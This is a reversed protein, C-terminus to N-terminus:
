DSLDADLSCRVPQRFPTEVQVKRDSEQSPLSAEIQRCAAQPCRGAPATIVALQEHQDFLLVGETLSGPDWWTDDDAFAVYDTALREVALNRGAAGLNVGPCLLIIDPFRKVVKGATGDISGNDVVVVPVDEPLACLKGLTDLLQDCRNYAIVAIGIRHRLTEGVVLATVARGSQGAFLSQALSATEHL